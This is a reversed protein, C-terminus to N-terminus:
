MSVCVQHASLWADGGLTERVRRMRAAGSPKKVKGKGQLAVAQAPHHESAKLAEAATRGPNVGLRVAVAAGMGEADSMQLTPM